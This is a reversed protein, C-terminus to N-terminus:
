LLLSSLIQHYDPSCDVYWIYIPHHLINMKQSLCPCCVSCVSLSSFMVCKGSCFSVDISQNCVAGTCVTDLYRDFIFLSTLYIYIMKTLGSWAPVLVSKYQKWQRWFSHSTYRLRSSYKSRNMIRGLSNLELESFQHHFALKSFRKQFAGTYHLTGSTHWGAVRWSRDARGRGVSWLGGVDFKLVNSCINDM